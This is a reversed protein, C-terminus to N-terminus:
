KGNSNTITQKSSGYGSSSSPRSYSKNNSSKSTVVGSKNKECHTEYNKNQLQVVNTSNAIYQVPVLVTCCYLVTCYLVTGYM